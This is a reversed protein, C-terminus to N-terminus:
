SGGDAGGGERVGDLGGVAVTEAVQVAAAYGGDEVDAGSGRKGRDRLGAVPCESPNRSCEIDCKDPRHRLPLLDQDLTLNHMSPLSHCRKLPHHLPFTIAGHHRDTLM